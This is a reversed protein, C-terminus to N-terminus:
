RIVNKAIQLHKKRLLDNKQPLLRHMQRSFAASCKVRKKQTTYDFLHLVLSASNHQIKINLLEPSILRKGMCIVAKGFIGRLDSQANAHAIFTHKRLKAFIAIRPSV